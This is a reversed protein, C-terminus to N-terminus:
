LRGNQIEEMILRMAKEHRSIYMIETATHAIALDRHRISDAGKCLHFHTERAIGHGEIYAIRYRHSIQL